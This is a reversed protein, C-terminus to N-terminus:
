LTQYMLILHQKNIRHNETKDQKNGGIPLFYSIEEHRGKIKVKRRQEQSLLGV